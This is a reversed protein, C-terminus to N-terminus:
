KSLISKNYLEGKPLLHIKLEEQTVNLLDKTELLQTVLKTISPLFSEPQVGLVTSLANEM